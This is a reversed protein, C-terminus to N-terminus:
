GNILETRYKRMQEVWAMFEEYPMDSKARNCIRCCSISNDITYGFENHM